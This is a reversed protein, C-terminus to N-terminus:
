TALPSQNRAPNMPYSTKIRPTGQFPITIASAEDAFVEVLMSVGPPLNYYYGYINQGPPSTWLTNAFNLFELRGFRPAGFNTHIPSIQGLKYINPAGFWKNIWSPISGVLTFAVADIAGAFGFFGSGSIVGAGIEQPTVPVLLKFYVAQLMYLTWIWNNSDNAGTSADQSCAFEAPVLSVGGGNIADFSIVDMQFPELSLDDAAM